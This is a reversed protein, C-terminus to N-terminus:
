FFSIREFCRLYVYWPKALCNDLHEHTYARKCHKCRDPGMPPIALNNQQMAHEGVLEIDRGAVPESLLGM